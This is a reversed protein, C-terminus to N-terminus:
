NIADNIFKVLPTMEKFIEAASKAFDNRHCTEVPLSYSIFYQKLKLLEAAPHDQEFGRPVRSLKDGQIEKFLKKFKKNTVISFIDEYRNAIMNRIKKLHEGSPMYMGAGLFVEGPEIHLYFGASNKWNKTHQFTAAVHTKYPSKNKSFRIDRYIRFMSKKPDVLIEPAFTNLLPKLEVILSQMPIKVFDEYVQKNTTFWKRNNNKKLNKLFKICEKPFGDFPPYIDIDELLLKKM